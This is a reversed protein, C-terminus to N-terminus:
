YNGRLQKQTTDAWVRLGSKGKLNVHLRLLSGRFSILMAQTGNELPVNPVKFFCTVTSDVKKALSYGVIPQSHSGGHSLQASPFDGNREKREREM